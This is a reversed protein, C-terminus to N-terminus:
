WRHTWRSWRAPRVRTSITAWLGGGVDERTVDLEHLRAHGEAHITGDAPTPHDIVVPGFWAKGSELRGHFVNVYGVFTRSLRRQRTTSSRRRHEDQEIVRTTSSSSAIPWSSRKKRFHTVFVSTPWDRRAPAAALKVTGPPGQRRAGRVARRPPAAPQVALRARARRAAAPRGPEVAAPSRPLRTAGVGCSTSGRAFRLEETPRTAVGAGEGVVSNEFVSMHRLARLAPSASGSTGAVPVVARPTRAMSSCRARDARDLGPSSGCCRRTKGSGSPGLLALLCGMPVMLNIGRLATLAIRVSAHCQTLEISMDGIRDRRDVGRRCRVRRNRKRSLRKCCWRSSWRSSRWCRRSPLRRKSFMSSCLSDGRPRASWRAEGCIPSPRGPCAVARDRSAFRACSGCRQHAGVEREPAHGASCRGATPALCGRRKKRKTGAKMATTARGVFRAFITALVIGLACIHDQHRREFLWPGFWGQRGFLQVFILGAVM